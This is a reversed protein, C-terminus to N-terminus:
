SKWKIEMVGCRELPVSDIVAQKFGNAHAGGPTWRSDVGAENGSSMRVNCLEEKPIQVLFVRQNNWASEPVDLKQCVAQLNYNCDELIKYAEEELMVFLSNDPYGLKGGCNQLISENAFIVPL